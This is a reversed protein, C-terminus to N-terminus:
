CKLGGHRYPRTENYAMKRRVEFDLDIGLAAALDGVRILLDALEAPFGEPKGKPGVRSFM